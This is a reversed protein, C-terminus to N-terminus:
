DDDGARRRERLGRLALIGAAIAAVIGGVSSIVNAYDTGLVGNHWQVIASAGYVLFVVGILAWLLETHRHVWGLVRPDQDDDEM